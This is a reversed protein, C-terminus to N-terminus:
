SSFPLLFPFLVKLHVVWTLTYNYFFIENLVLNIFSKDKRQILSANAVNKEKSINIDCKLIRNLYIFTVPSKM